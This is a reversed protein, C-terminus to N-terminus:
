VTNGGALEIEHGIVDTLRVPIEDDVDRVGVIGAEQM